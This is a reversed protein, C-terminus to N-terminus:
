KKDFVVPLQCLIAEGGKVSRITEVIVKPDERIPLLVM